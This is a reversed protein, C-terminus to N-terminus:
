LKPLSFLVQGDIIRGVTNCGNEPQHFHHWAIVAFVPPAMALVMENIGRASGADETTHSDLVIQRDAPSLAEIQMSYAVYEAEPHPVREFASSAQLYAHALEHVIVSNFLSDLPLRHFPNGSTARSKIADPHLVTVTRAGCDFIGICGLKDTEMEPVITITIPTDLTLGCASFQEHAELAVECTREALAPETASVSVRTGECVLPGAMVAHPICLALSLGFTRIPGM